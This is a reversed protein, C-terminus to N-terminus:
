LSERLFSSQLGLRRFGNWISFSSFSSRLAGLGVRLGAVINASRCFNNNKLLFAQRVDHVFFNSVHERQNKFKLIKRFTVRIGFQVFTKWRQEKPRKILFESASDVPLCSVGFQTKSIKLEGFIRRKCKATQFRREVIKRMVQKRISFEGTDQSSEGKTSHLFFRFEGLRKSRSRICLFLSISTDVSLPLSLISNLQYFRRLLLFKTQTKFTNVLHTPLQLIWSPVRAQDPGLEGGSRRWRLRLDALHSFFVLLIGDFCICNWSSTDSNHEFSCIELPLKAAVSQEVHDSTSNPRLSAFAASSPLVSQNRPKGSPYRYQFVIVCQAFDNGDFNLGNSTWKTADM